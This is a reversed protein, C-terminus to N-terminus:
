QFFSNKKDRDIRGLENILVAFGIEDLSRSQIQM